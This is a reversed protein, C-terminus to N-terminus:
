SRRAKKGIAILNFVKDAVNETSMPRLTFEDAGYDLIRTKANDADAIALIKVDQNLNKTHVIVMAGRDEAIQGNIVMADFRNAEAALINM